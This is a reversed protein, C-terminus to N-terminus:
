RRKIRSRLESATAEKDLGRRPLRLNFGPSSIIVAAAPKGVVTAGIRCFPNTGTKM